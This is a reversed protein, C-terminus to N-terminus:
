IVQIRLFMAVSNLKDSIIKICNEGLALKECPKDYGLYFSFSKQIGKSSLFDLNM